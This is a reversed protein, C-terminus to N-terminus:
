LKDSNKQCILEGKPQFGISSLVGIQEKQSQGKTAILVLLKTMRQIEKLVDNESNSM